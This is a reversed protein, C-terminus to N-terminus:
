KRSNFDDRLDSPSEADIRAAEAKKKSDFDVVVKKVDAPMIASSGKHTFYWGAAFCLVLALGIAIEVSVVEQRGGIGM